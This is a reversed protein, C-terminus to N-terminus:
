ARPASRATYARSPAPPGFAAVPSLAAGSAPTKVPSRPIDTRPPTFGEPSQRGGSALDPPRQLSPHGPAPRPRGAEHKLFLPVVERGFRRTFVIAGAHTLHVGEYFGEDAVWRRADVLPVQHERAVRRLYDDVRALKAASWWSRFLGMEPMQILVAAIGERECVALLERLARDSSASVHVTDLLPAYERRVRELMPQLVAPPLPFQYAPVALWGWGDLGRWSLNIQPDRPLWTPALRNLLFFRHSFWPVLQDLYWARCFSVPDAAYPGLVPLDRWGLRRPDLAALQIDGEITLSAEWTEVVVGDPHIGDALLRHLSLLEAVFPAGSLAFNFVLPREGAPEPAGLCDPRLGVGVRSTGLAVILPRDGPREAMRGRLRQRKRGYEPDRLEPHRHEGALVFLLQGCVFAVL